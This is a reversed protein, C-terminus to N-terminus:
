DSLCLILLCVVEVLDSLVALELFDSEALDSLVTDAAEDLLDLLGALLPDAELLVLEFIDSLDLLAAALLVLVFLWLYDLQISM